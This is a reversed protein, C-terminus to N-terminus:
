AVNKHFSIADQVKKMSINYLNSIVKNTEGGKHLTFITQTKINTNSITPQGFQHQPDVVINKSKELPYYKEALNNTGFEIKQLFPELISKIDLQKKQDAKILADLEEYWVNRGDTQINRAFPYLTNLDKSIKLHFKQIKQASLGKLRLQYFIYFELLTYFNIARYGKSGFSYTYDSAFRGDWFEILWHRLKAIPLRLIKSADSILYIGEGLTPVIINSQNDAAM